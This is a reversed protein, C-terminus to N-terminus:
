TLLTVSWPLWDQDPALVPLVEISIANKSPSGQTNQLILHNTFHNKLKNHEKSYEFQPWWSMRLILLCVLLM